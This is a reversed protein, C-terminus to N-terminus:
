KTEQRTCHQTANPQRAKNADHATTAAMHNDQKTKHNDQRTPPRPMTMHDHQTTKQQTTQGQATKFKRTNTKHYGQTKKTKYKDQRAATKHNEQRAKHNAQRTMDQRTTPQHNDQRM